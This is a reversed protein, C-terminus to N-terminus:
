RDSPGPQPPIKPTDGPRPTKPGPQQPIRFRGETVPGSLRNVTCPNSCQPTCSHNWEARIEVPGSLEPVPKKDLTISM